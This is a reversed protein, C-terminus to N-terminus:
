NIVVNKANSLVWNGDKRYLYPKANPNTIPKEIMIAEAYINGDEEGLFGVIRNTMSPSNRMAASVLSLPAAIEM